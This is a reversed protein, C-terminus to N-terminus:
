SREETRDDDELGMPKLKFGVEINRYWEIYEYLGESNGEEEVTNDDDEEGLRIFRYGAQEDYPLDNTAGVGESFLRITDQMLTTHAMVDEYDDYWKVHDHHFGLVNDDVRTLEGVADTIHKDAKALQINIFADCQEKDKFRLVYAVNSRYGM